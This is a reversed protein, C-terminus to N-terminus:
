ARKKRYVLLAVIVGVSLLVGLVAPLVFTTDGTQPIEDDTIDPVDDPEEDIGEVVFVWDVMSNMSQFENGITVPASIVVELTAYNGTELWGLSVGHEEVTLDGTGNKVLAGATTGDYLVTKDGNQMHATIKMPLSNLLEQQQQTLGEVSESKLWVKVNESGANEIRVTQTRGPEGPMLDKSNVFFDQQSITLSTQEESGGSYTVTRDPAVEESGDAAFVSMVSCGLLMVVTLSIAAIRRFKNKKM